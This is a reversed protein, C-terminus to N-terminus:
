ENNLRRLLEVANNCKYCYEGYDFVMDKHNFWLNCKQCQCVEKNDLCVWCYGNRGKKVYYDKGCNDCKDMSIKYCHKCVYMEESEIFYTDKEPFDKECLGCETDNIERNSDIILLLIIVSIAIIIFNSSSNNKM